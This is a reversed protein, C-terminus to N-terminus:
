IVSTSLRLGGSISTSSTSTRRAQASRQNVDFHRASGKVPKGIVPPPRAGSGPQQIRAPYLGGFPQHSATPAPAQQNYYAPLRSASSPPPKPERTSRCCRRWLCYLACLLVLGTGAYIALQIEFDLAQFRGWWELVIGYIGGPPSAPPPSPPPPSPPTPPTAQKYVKIYSVNLLGDSEFTADSDASTAWATCCDTGPNVIDNQVCQGSGDAAQMGGVGMCQDFFYSAYEGCVGINFVIKQADVLTAPDPCSGPVRAESAAFPYYSILWLDWQDPRPADSTLDSPLEDEPIYFVKMFDATWEAAFVGPRANLSDGSYEQSTPMPACGYLKPTASYNTVCNFRTCGNAGGVCNYDQFYRCRDVVSADMTCERDGGTHFSPFGTKKNVYEMLDLEGGSPWPKNVAHTWFAPWLACASPVRSFRMTLLYYTWSRTSEIRVSERKYVGSSRDTRGGTRIITGGPTTEVLKKAAAESRNVYQAAGYNFDKQVFEFDDLFTAGSAEWDLAYTQHAGPLEGYCSASGTPTCCHKDACGVAGSSCDAATYDPSSPPSGDMRCCAGDSGCYSSGQGWCAEALHSVDAFLSVDSM